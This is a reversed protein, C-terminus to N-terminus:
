QRFVLPKTEADVHHRGVIVNLILPIFLVAM